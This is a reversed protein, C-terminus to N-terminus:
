RSLTVGVICAKQRLHHRLPMEAFQFWENANFYELGPHQTKGKFTASNIQNALLIIEEKQSILENYIAKKSKPQPTSDNHPPGEMQLDPFANNLLMEKGTATAEKHANDNCSICCRVQDFFWDTNEILHM